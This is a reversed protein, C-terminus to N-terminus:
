ATRLTGRRVAMDSRRRRVNLWMMVGTIALLAPLIGGVFIIVRWVMPLGTGDHIRRMLRATTEPAPPKPPSARGTRDNVIVQTGGIRTLQWESKPSTPWTIQTLPGGGSGLTAAQEATLKTEVMPQAGMRRMREAMSPVAPDGSVGAFFAPFSIWAGTFSLVALPLCIWFGSQYHLNGSTTPNRRWRLGRTVSGKIPWWLWLGTLSSLLMAVGVWGVIQRGVGPVMLSGHLVHLTQLFGGSSSAKDLLRADQPHLYLTTRTPRAGPQPPPSTLTAVVPGGKPKFALSALKEKPGAQKLAATAYASPPLSAVATVERQPHLLGEIEEHWVLVAGSLSIPIILIALTLGLWKHIQFWLARLQQKTM